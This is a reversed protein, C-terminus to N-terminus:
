RPPVATCGICGRKHRQRLGKEIEAACGTTSWESHVPADCRVRRLATVIAVYQEAHRTLVDIAEVFFLLGFKTKLYDEVDSQGILKSRQVYHRRKPVYVLRDTVVEDWLEAAEEGSVARRESGDLRGLPTM